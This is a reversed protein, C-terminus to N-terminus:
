ELRKAEAAENEQKREKEREAWQQAKLEMMKLSGDKLTNLNFELTLQTQELSTIQSKFGSIEQQYKREKADWAVMPKVTRNDDKVSQLKQLENNLKLPNNALKVQSEKLQKVVKKHM